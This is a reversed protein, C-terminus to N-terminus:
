QRRERSKKPKWENKPRQHLGADIQNPKLGIFNDCLLITIWYCIWITSAYAYLFKISLNVFSRRLIWYYDFIHHQDKIFSNIIQSTKSKTKTSCRERERDNERQEIHRWIFLTWYEFYSEYIWYLLTVLFQFITVSSAQNSKAQVVEIM